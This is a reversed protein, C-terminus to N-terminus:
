AYVPLITENSSVSESRESSPLKTWVDTTNVESSAAQPLIYEEEEVCFTLIIAAVDRRALARRIAAATHRPLYRFLEEMLHDILQIDVVDYEAAPRANRPWSM